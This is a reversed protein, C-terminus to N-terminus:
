KKYPTGAHDKRTFFNDIEKKIDETELAKSLYGDPKFELVQKISQRDTRGTLFIVFIDSFEADARIM